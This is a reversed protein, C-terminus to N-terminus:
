YKLIQFGNGSYDTHHEWCVPLWKTISFWLVSFLLVYKLSIKIFFINIIIINIYITLFILYWTKLFKNKTTEYM